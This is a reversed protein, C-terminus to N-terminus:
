RRDQGIRAGRRMGARVARRARVDPGRVRDPRAAARVSDRRPFVGCPSARRRAPPRPCRQRRARDSLSLAALYLGAPWGETRRVLAQVSAFDLELGAHRLLVSAEAPMMALDQVRVEILARRARLRGLPLPPERGRASRSWRAPPSRTSCGSAARLAVAEAAARSARRRTVLVVGRGAEAGALLAGVGAEIDDAQLRTPPRAVRVRPRRAPVVRVLLSSKGYGPPAVIVALSERGRAKALRRVLTTRRVLGANEPRGTRAAASRRRSVPPPLAPAAATPTMARPAPEAARAAAGPM